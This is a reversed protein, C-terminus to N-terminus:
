LCEPLTFWHEVCLGNVFRLWDYFPEREHDVHRDIICYEIWHEVSEGFFVGDCFILKHRVCKGDFLTHELRQGFDDGDFFVLAVWQRLQEWVLNGIAVCEAFNVCTGNRLVVRLGVRIREALNIAFELRLEDILCHVFEICDRSGILYEIGLKLLVSHAVCEDSGVFHGCCLDVGVRVCVRLREADAVSLSDYLVVPLRLEVRQAVVVSHVLELRNVVRLIHELGDSYVVRLEDVVRHGVWHQVLELLVNGDSIVLKHIVSKVDLEDYWFRQRLCDCESYEVAFRQSLHERM